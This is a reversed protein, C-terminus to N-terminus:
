RPGVYDYIINGEEDTGSPKLLRGYMKAPSPGSQPKNWCIKFWDAMTSYRFLAANKNSNTNYLRASRWLFGGFVEKIGGSIDSFRVCGKRKAIAIAGGFHDKCSPWTTPVGCCNIGDSLDRCYADSVLFRLGKEHALDRMKTLIPRKLGESLRKYGQQVSEKKYFQLIDFGAVQSIRNYREVLAQDARSELCFFETSVSYAGAVAAQTIVERWDDSIGIIYPRLRLTVHIGENALAEIAKFREQPSQVGKEVQAAKERDATIISVKVHWNHKHRRFLELYREDRTWWTSKTSFSLPYDILDFFKLLQLTVGYQKEYMDFPDALAGWQMVRRSQIYPVFQALDKPLKDGEGNITKTFLDIVLQPNVSRVEGANYGTCCHSKQFFSFCYFCNFSCRSYTDFTMPM